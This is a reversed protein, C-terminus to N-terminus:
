PNELTSKHYKHRAIWQWIISDLEFSQALLEIVPELHFNVGLYVFDFLM